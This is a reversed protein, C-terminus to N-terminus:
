YKGSCNNDFITSRASQFGENCVCESVIKDGILFEQCAHQGCLGHQYSCDKFILKWKKFWLKNKFNNKNCYVEKVAHSEKGDMWVNNQHVNVM